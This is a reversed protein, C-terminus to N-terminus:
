KVNLSKIEINKHIFKNRSKFNTFIDKPIEELSKKSEIIKLNKGQISGGQIEDLQNKFFINLNNTSITAL